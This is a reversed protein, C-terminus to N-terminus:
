FCPSVSVGESGVGCEVGAYVSSRSAVSSVCAQSGLVCACVCACVSVWVWVLCVHAGPTNSNFGGFRSPRLSSPGKAQRRGPAEPFCALSPSISRPSSPLLSNTWVAWVGVRRARSPHTQSATCPLCNRLFHSPLHYGLRATDTHTRTHARTFLSDAESCLAWRANHVLASSLFSFAPTSPHFSLCRPLRTLNARFSPLASVRSARRDTECKSRRACEHTQSRGGQREGSRSGLRAEVRAGGMGGWGVRSRLWSASPSRRDQVPLRNTRTGGEEGVRLRAFNSARRQLRPPRM